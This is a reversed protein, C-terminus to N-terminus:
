ARGLLLAVAPRRALRALRALVVRVPVQDLLGAEPPVRLRALVLRGGDGVDGDGVVASPRPPGVIFAVSKVMQRRNPHAPAAAAAPSSLSLSSFGRGSRLPVHSSSLDFLSKPRKRSRGMEFASEVSTM